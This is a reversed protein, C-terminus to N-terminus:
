KHKPTLMEYTVPDGKLM